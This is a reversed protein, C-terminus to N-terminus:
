LRTERFLATTRLCSNMLLIPLSLDLSGAGGAGGHCSNGGVSCSRQITNTYVQDFSAEYLPTCESVVPPCAPAAPETGCALCM